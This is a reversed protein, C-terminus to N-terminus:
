AAEQLPPMGALWVQEPTKGRLSSHGRDTNYWDIYQAIDEKAERVTDYARLYLPYDLHLRDIANMVALDSESAPKPLYYVAGRSINLLEAQRRISLKHSRDIM